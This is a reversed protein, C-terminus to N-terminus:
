EESVAESGLNSATEASMPDSAEGPGKSMVQFDPNVVWSQLFVKRTLDSSRSLSTRLSGPLQKVEERCCDGRSDTSLIFIAGVWGM